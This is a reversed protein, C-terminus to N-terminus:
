GRFGRAGVPQLQDGLDARGPQPLPAAFVPDEDRLEMRRAAARLPGGLALTRTDGEVGDRELAHDVVGGSRDALAMVQRMGEVDTGLGGFIPLRSAKIRAAAAAIADALSAPKGGIQPGSSAVAREFGAIAKVCGNKNVKLGTATRSVQLDDCLIGCFPCAVNDFQGSAPAETGTGAM